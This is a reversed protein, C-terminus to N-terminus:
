EPPLRPLVRIHFDSGVWKPGFRYTLDISRGAHLPPADIELVHVGLSNAVTEQERVDQWGDLGWRVTGAERLAITLRCGEPLQRVPAQESWVVRTLAPREGRYRQWVSAPRDFPRELRRSAVLKLYEAHAWVLPM